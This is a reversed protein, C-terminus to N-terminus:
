WIWPILKKTRRQYEQYEAGLAAVMAAEEVRIRYLFAALPIAIAVVLSLWSQEALGLGLPIMLLGAYSPHRVLRYPGDTVVRQGAHIEVTTRFSSGLWTVARVRLILGLLMVAFGIWFVASTKGGPFIFLPVGSVIGAATNGVALAVINLYITGRDHTTKGKGQIRDRLILWIEFAVWVCQLAIICILYITM